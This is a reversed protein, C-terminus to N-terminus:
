WNGRSNRHFSNSSSYSAALHHSSTWRGGVAIVGNCEPNKEIFVSLHDALAVSSNGTIITYPIKRQSLWGAAYTGVTTGKGQGAVPNIVLAWM